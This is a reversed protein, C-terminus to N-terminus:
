SCAQTYQSMNCVYKLVTKTSSNTFLKCEASKLVAVLVIQTNTLIYLNSVLRVNIELTDRDVSADLPKFIMAYRM